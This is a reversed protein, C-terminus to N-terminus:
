EKRHSQFKGSLTAKQLIHGEMSCLLDPKRSNPSLSLKCDLVYVTFTYTHISKFPPKPGKYCHRGYAIGQCADQLGPVNGGYSIAKPIVRQAPINWMVWHNYNPFIPHSNDDLTIALSVAKECIEQLILEPSIDRGRGSHVNPIWGGEKFSPSTMSLEKM